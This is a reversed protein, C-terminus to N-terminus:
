ITATNCLFRGSSKKPTARVFLELGFNRFLRTKGLRILGAKIKQLAPVLLPLFQTIGIALNSPFLIALNDVLEAGRLCEVNFGGNILLTRLEMPTYMELEPQGAGYPSTWDYGFLKLLAHKFGVVNLSNPTSIVVSGTPKLVSHIAQLAKKTYPLHEIVECFFVVDFQNPQLDLEEIDMIYAELNTLNLRKVTNELSEILPESLDVAIVQKAGKLAALLSLRGFGCGVDLVTKGEIEPVMELVIPLTYPISTGWVNHRYFEKVDSSEKVDEVKVTSISGGRSLNIFFEAISIGMSKLSNKLESLYLRSLRDAFSESLGGLHFSIANWRILFEEVSRGLVKWEKQHTGHEKL